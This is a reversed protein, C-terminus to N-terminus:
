SGPAVTRIQGCRAAPLPPAAALPEGRMSVDPEEVRVYLRYRFLPRVVIQPELRAPQLVEGRVSAIM